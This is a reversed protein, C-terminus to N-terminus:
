RKLIKQYYSTKNEQIKQIYDLNNQHEKTIEQLSKKYDETVDKLIRTKEAADEAANKTSSFYQFAKYIGYGLAFVAAVIAIIVTLIFVYPHAMTVKNLMIQLKIWIGTLAINLGTAVSIKYLIGILFNLSTVFPTIIWSGKLMLWMAYVVRLAIGLSIAAGIVKLIPVNFMILQQSVAQISEAIYKLTNGIVFLAAGIGDMFGNAMLQSWAQWAEKVATLGQQLPTLTGNLENAKRDMMEVTMAMGIFLPIGSLLIIKAILLAINTALMNVSVSAIAAQISIGKFFAMLVATGLIMLSLKLLWELAASLAVLSLRIGSSMPMYRTTFDIFSKTLSLIKKTTLEVENKLQQIQEIALRINRTWDTIITIASREVANEFTIIHQTAADVTKNLDNINKAVSAIGNNFDNVRAQIQIAIPAITAM